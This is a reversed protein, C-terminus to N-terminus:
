EGLERRIARVLQNATMPNTDRRSASRAPDGSGAGPSAANIAFHGPFVEQRSDVNFRGLAGGVPSTLGLRSSPYLFLVVREGVRYREGSNWLGAWERVELLQGQRVGRIAQEVYFTIRSAAMERPGSKFSSFCEVSTVTGAFILGSQEALQRLNPVTFASESGRPPPQAGAQSFSFVALYLLVSILYLKRFRLPM